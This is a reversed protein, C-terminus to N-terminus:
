MFLRAQLLLLFVSVSPAALSHSFLVSTIIVGLRNASRPFFSPLCVLQLFLRLASRLAHRIGNCAASASSLKRSSSCFRNSEPNPCFLEAGLLISVYDVRGYGPSARCFHRYVPSRSMFFQQPIPLSVSLGLSISLGLSWKRPQLERHPRQWTRPSPPGETCPTSAWLRM